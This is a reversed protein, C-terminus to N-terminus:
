SPDGGKPAADLAAAFARVDRELRARIAPHALTIKCKCGGCVSAWVRPGHPAEHFPGCNAAPQGCVECIPDAM